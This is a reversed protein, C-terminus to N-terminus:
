RIGDRLKYCFSLLRFQVPKISKDPGGCHRSLAALTGRSHRWLVVLTGRSYWSLAALTGRSHRSLAALTGSPKPLIVM